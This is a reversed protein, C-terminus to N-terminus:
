QNREACIAAATLAYVRAADILDKRFMFKGKRRDAGEPNSRTPGYTLSPRVVTFPFGSKRHEQMLLDECAAKERSYQWHPNVLPTSETIRYDLVPKQYASASSIFIYQRVKGAFLEIDRQVHDPTFAIWDVVVDFRRGALAAEAAARDHIDATIVEVGAPLEANHTRGRNLLCMDIGRAAALETCASSILGSGGIFLVKM